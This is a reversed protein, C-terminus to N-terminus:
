ADTKVLFLRAQAENNSVKFYDSLKTIELLQKITATPSILVIQKNRKKLDQQLSFFFRLGTSDLFSLSSLDLIYDGQGLLDITQNFDMSIVTNADLRGVLNAVTLQKSQDRIVILKHKDATIDNGPLFLSMKNEEEPGNVIDWAHTVKLLKIVDENVLGTASVNIQKNQLRQYLRLLMAIANTDIFKVNIFDFVLRKYDASCLEWHKIFMNMSKADLRKSLVITMEYSNWGKKVDNPYPKHDKILRRNKIRQLFNSWLLPITIVVLKTLGIAYRKWLRRPDQMIRYIWEMGINQVWIPARSVNGVIFEFTGGIGITVAAKLKNRNRNFWLEQKPNGFGVLLIDPNAQNIQELIREDQEESSLMKEGETYVFPSYIGAINLSPHQKKLKNAAQQAIDGKGGLFFISHGTKAIAAALAPILDAGTVREQLPTRLLQSLWVIPMGDATVMDAKRLIELLEPHRAPGSIKWSLSNMLFDVNVTAVQRPRKDQQYEKIFFLIRKIASKLSVNDIPVGLIMVEPRQTILEYM